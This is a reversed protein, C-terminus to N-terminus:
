FYTPDAGTRFIEAEATKFSIKNGSCKKQHISITKKLEETKKHTEKNDLYDSEYIIKDCTECIAQLTYTKRIKRFIIDKTQM